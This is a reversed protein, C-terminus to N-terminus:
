RYVLIFRCLEKFRYLAGRSQIQAFALGEKNYAEKLRKKILMTDYNSLIDGKNKQVEKM